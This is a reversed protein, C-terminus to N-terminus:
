LGNDRKWRQYQEESEPHARIYQDIMWSAETDDLHRPLPLQYFALRRLQGESPPAILASAEGKTASAPFYIGKTALYEIQRDTAADDKWYHPDDGSKQIQIETLTNRRNPLCTALGEAIHLLFHYDLQKVEFPCDLVRLYEHQIPLSAKHFRAESAYYSTSSGPQAQSPPLSQIEPYEYLSQWKETGHICVWANDPILKLAFWERVLTWPFPGVTKGAPNVMYLKTGRKM